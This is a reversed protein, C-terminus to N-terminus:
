PGPIPSEQAKALQNLKAFARCQSEPTMDHRSIFGSVNAFHGLNKPWLCSQSTRRM